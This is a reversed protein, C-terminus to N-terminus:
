KHPAPAPNASLHGSGVTAKGCLGMRGHAKGGGVGQRRVQVTPLMDAMHEALQQRGMNELVEKIGLCVGQRTSVQPFLPPLLLLLLTPLYTPCPWSTNYSVSPSPPNCQVMSM